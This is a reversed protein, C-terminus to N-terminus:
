KTNQGIVVVGKDKYKNHLRNVHAIAEKCPTWWTSWFEVIYVTGPKFEKVPEGQVWKSIYLKPAPDGENLDAAHASLTMAALAMLFVCPTLTKLKMPLCPIAKYYSASHM